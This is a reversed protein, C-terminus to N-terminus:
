DVRGAELTLDLFLVKQVSLQFSLYQPTVNPTSVIHFM